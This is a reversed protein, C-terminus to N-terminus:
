RYVGQVQCDAAATTTASTSSAAIQWIGSTGIPRLGPPFEWMGGFGGGGVGAGLPFSFQPAVGAIAGSKCHVNLYRPTAVAPDCTGQVMLIEGDVASALTGTSVGIGFRATGLWPPASNSLLTGVVTVTTFQGNFAGVTGELQITVQFRSALCRAAAVWLPVRLAQGAGGGAVSYHGYRGSAVLTPPAAASIAYVRISMTEGPKILNLDQVYVDLAPWQQTTTYVTTEQGTLLGGAQAWPIDLTRAEVAETVGTPPLAHPLPPTPQVPPDYVNPFPQGASPDALSPDVPPLTRPFSARNPLAITQPVLVSSAPFRNRSFRDAM